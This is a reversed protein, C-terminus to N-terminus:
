PLNKCKRQDRATALIQQHEIFDVVEVRGSYKRRAGIRAAPVHGAPEVNARFHQAFYLQELASNMAVFPDRIWRDFAIANHSM